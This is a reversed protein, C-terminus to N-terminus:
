RQDGATPAAVSPDGTCPPGAAVGWPRQGLRLTGIVRWAGVDVVSLDNSPGNATYLQRGDPSLALGWPRQGVRLTARQVFSGADIAVVTGGRGTAVYVTRSDPAVVVGMPRVNEGTLTLQRAAVHKRTDIETVTGDNEGTVYARQGDPAFAVARPRQGVEVQAVSELTQTDIVTVRHAEESSVYVYRGDPSTAIGEPEGGVPLSKLTVGDKTRQVVTTGTDESAVFVREGSRDLSLQEPDSVGRLIRLLTRTSVDVVGIGDATKDAPPLTSEDVGPPAFPSGSLAVYLLRGDPSLRLGRPRKGLPVVAVTDLSAGDIITLDGSTENTVYVCHAAVGTAAACPLVAGLLALLSVTAAIPIGSRSDKGYVRENRDM